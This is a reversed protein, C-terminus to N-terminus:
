PTERITQRAHEITQKIIKSDPDFKLATNWDATAQSRDGKNDYAVGRYLYAEAKEPDLVLTHNYDEIAKDYEKKYLYANGRGLYADTYKPELRIAETFNAISLTYNGKNFYTIGNHYPVEARLCSSFCAFVLALLVATIFKKM